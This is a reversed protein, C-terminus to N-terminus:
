YSLEFPQASSAQLVLAGNNLDLQDMPALGHVERFIGLRAAVASRETPAACNERM